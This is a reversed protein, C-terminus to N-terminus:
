LRFHTRNALGNMLKILTSKGSGSPGALLTVTGPACTLSAHEIGSDTAGLLIGASYYFTVDDIRIM